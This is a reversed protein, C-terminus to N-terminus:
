TFKLKKFNRCYLIEYLILFLFNKFDKVFVKFNSLKNFNFFIHCDYFRCMNPMAQLDAVTTHNSM